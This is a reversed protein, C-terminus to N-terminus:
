HDEIQNTELNSSIKIDMSYPISLLSYVQLTVLINLQFVITEGSTSLSLNLLEM